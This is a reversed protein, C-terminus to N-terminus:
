TNKRLSLSSTASIPTSTSSPLTTSFPQSVTTPRPSPVQWLQSPIQTVELPFPPASATSSTPATSSHWSPRHSAPRVGSATALDSAAGATPLAIEDTTFDLPYFRQEVTQRIEDKTKGKRAMFICLAIAQAGAIGDPHNHTCEASEKAKQLVEEETDFAWAVPSVRMASGNGFSNYPSAVGDRSAQLWSRFRGGYSARYKLGYKAYYSAIDGGHLIWDATAITLVSDDTFKHGDGFFAINQKDKENNFEYVSGAIDGIIAGIM